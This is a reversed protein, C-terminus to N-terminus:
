HATLWRSSALVFAFGLEVQPLGGHQAVFNALEFPNCGSTGFGAHCCQFQGEAGGLVLVFSGIGCGNSRGEDYRTGAFCQAFGGGVRRLAGIAGCLVAGDAVM